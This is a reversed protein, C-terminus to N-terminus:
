RCQNITIVGSFHGYRTGRRHIHFLNATNKEVNKEGGINIIFSCYYGDYKNGQFLSGTFTKYVAQLM